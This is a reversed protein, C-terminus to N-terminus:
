TVRVYELVRGPGLGTREVDRAVRVDRDRGLDVPLEGVLDIRTAQQRPRAEGRDTLEPGGQAHVRVRDPGDIATERVGPVHRAAM